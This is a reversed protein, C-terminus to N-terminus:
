VRGLENQEEDLIFITGRDANLLEGTKLTIDQSMEHFVSEGGRADFMCDIFSLIQNLTQREQHGECCIDKTIVRFSERSLPKLISSFSM